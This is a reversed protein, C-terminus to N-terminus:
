AAGLMRWGTRADHLCASADFRRLLREGLRVDALVVKTLADAIMCDRAVVSVARVARLARGSRANVHVGAADVVSSALAADSLEIAAAVGAGLRLAIREPAVGFRRLDGGANVSATTAGYGRLVALARDVAYGKAIGGLDLWLPRRLRVRSRDLLEVDQWNACADAATGGPRPLTGREVLRRAVTPDFCGNSAAALGIAAALVAHTRRDVRVARGVAERHLRSLESAEDHFSMLRHIAAVEDFGAEIAALADARALGGVRMEVFTGLWPRARAIQYM